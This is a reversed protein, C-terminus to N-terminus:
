RRNFLESWRARLDREAQAVPPLTVHTQLGRVLTQPEPDVDTRSPARGAEALIEQVDISILANALVRAGNPRDTTNSVAVGLPQVIVPEVGVWGTKGGGRRDREVVELRTNVGVAHEGSTVFAVLTRADSRFRIGQQALGRM